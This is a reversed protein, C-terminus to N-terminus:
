EREVDQEIAQLPKDGTGDSGDTLDSDFPLIADFPNPQGNARYAYALIEAVALFAESPVPSDLEVKALLEALDRDERVKIGSAFAMALIKAAVHGRGAATIKAIADSGHGETAIAVATQRGVDPLATANLPKLAADKDLGGSDFIDGKPPTEAM